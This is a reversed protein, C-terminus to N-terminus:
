DAAEYDEEAVFFKYFNDSYDDGLIKELVQKNTIRGHQEIYDAIKNIIDISIGEVPVRNLVVAGNVNISERAKTGDNYEVAIQTLSGDVTTAAFNPLVSQELLGAIRIATDYASGSPVEVYGENEIAGYVYIRFTKGSQNEIELSSFPLDFFADCACFVVCLFLLLIVSTLFRAKM